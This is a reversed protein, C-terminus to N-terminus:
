MHQTTPQNTPSGAPPRLGLGLRGRAPGRATHAWSRARAGPAMVTVGRARPVCGCIGRTGGGGGVGGKKRRRGAAPAAGGLMPGASVAAAASPRARLGCASPPMPNAAPPLGARALRELLGPRPASCAGGAHSANRKIAHSSYLFHNCELTYGIEKYHGTRAGGAHSANSQIWQSLRNGPSRRNFITV